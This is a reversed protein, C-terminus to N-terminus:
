VDHDAEDDGPALVVRPDADGRRAIALGLDGGSRILEEEVSELDFMEADLSALQQTREDDSMTAAGPALAAEGEQVLLASLRKPDTLAFLAAAPMAPLGLTANGLLRGVMDSADFLDARNACLGLGHRERAEKALLSVVTEANAAIAERTPAALDVARRRRKCDSLQQRIATIDHHLSAIAAKHGAVAVPKARSTVTRASM